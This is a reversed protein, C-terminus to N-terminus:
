LAGKLPVGDGNRDRVGEVQVRGLRGRPPRYLKGRAPRPLLRLCSRLRRVHITPNLLTSRSRNQPFLSLPHSPPSLLYLDLLFPFLTLLLSSLSLRAAISFCLCSLYSFSSSTDLQLHLGSQPVSLSRVIKVWLRWSARTRLRM